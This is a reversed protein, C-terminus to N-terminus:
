AGEQEAMKKDSTFVSTRDHTKGSLQYVIEHLQANSDEDLYQVFNNDFDGLRQCLEPIIDWAKESLRLQYARSDKPDITKCVYGLAVLRNVTRTAMAKTVKLKQSLNCLNIEENDAIVLLYPYTANSLDLDKLQLDLQRQINRFLHYFFRLKPHLLILKQQNEAM